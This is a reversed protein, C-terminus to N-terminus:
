ICFICNSSISAGREMMPHSLLNFLNMGKASYNKWIIKKKKITLIKGRSLSLILKNGFSNWSFSLFPGIKVLVFAVFKKGYIEWLKLSFDLSCSYLITKKKKNFKRYTIPKFGVYLIEKEHGILFNQFFFNKSNWLSIRKDDSCIAIIKKVHSIALQNIKFTHIKHVRSGKKFINLFCILHEKSYSLIRNKELWKSNIVSFKYMSLKLLFHFEWISWFFINGFGNTIMVLRSNESWKLEFISGEPNRFSEIIKGTEGLLIIKGNFLGSIVLTGRVNFDLSVVDKKESFKDLFNIQFFKQKNIKKKKGFKLDWKYFISNRTGFFLCFKRPHWTFTYISYNSTFCILKKPYLISAEELFSKSVIEPNDNLFMEIPSRSDNRFVPSSNIEIKSFLIGRQVLSILLGAPIKKKNFLSYNLNSESGLTFASHSYGCEQLYFFLLADIESFDITGMKLNIKKVSM